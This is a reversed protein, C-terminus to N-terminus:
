CVGISIASSYKELIEAGVLPNQGAEFDRGSQQHHVAGIQKQALKESVAGM